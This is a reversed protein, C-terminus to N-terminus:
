FRRDQYPLGKGDECYGKLSYLFIGWNYNCFRYFETLERWKEQKLTVAVKGKRQELHFSIETGVWQPDSDICEWVVRNDPEFIAVKMRDPKGEGFHFTNIAGLAPTVSLHDTWIAALGRETTLAAFVAEIPAKVYQIQEISYM